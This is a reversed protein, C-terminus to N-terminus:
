SRRWGGRINAGKIILLELFDNDGSEIATKLLSFDRTKYDAGAKILSKIMSSINTDTGFTLLMDILFYHKNYIKYSLNLSFEPVLSKIKELDGKRAANRLRDEDNFEYFFVNDVFWQFVSDLIQKLANVGSSWM